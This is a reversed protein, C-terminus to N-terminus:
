LAGSSAGAKPRAKKQEQEAQQLCGEALALIALARLSKDSFSNAQYLADDYDSKSLEGLIKEPNLGPTQFTAYRAFNKGEIRRSLSQRSFDPDELENINKIADGILSISRGL